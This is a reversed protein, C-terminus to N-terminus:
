KAINKIIELTEKLQKKDTFNKFKHDNFKAKLEKAFEAKQKDDLTKVISLIEEKLGEGSDDLDEAEKKLVDDFSKVESKSRKKGQHAREIAGKWHEFKPEEIEEGRKFTGTRDKIVVGYSVGDKDYTRIVVDFDFESDKQMNPMVGVKVPQGNINETKDKQEAVFVLNKGQKAYRMMRQYFSDYKLKIKGYERYSLGEAEASRGNNRARQEAVNLAAHQQNEHFRTISDVVFTEIKDFLEEEMELEDLDSNLDTLSLADSNVLVNENSYFITGSDSDINMQNPFTLAFPTKGSGAEGYVLFKVGEQRKEPKTLAM